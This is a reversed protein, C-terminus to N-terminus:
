RPRLRSPRAWLSETPGCWRRSAGVLLQCLPFRQHPRLEIVTESSIDAMAWRTTLEDYLSEVETATTAESGRLVDLPCNYAFTDIDITVPSDETM